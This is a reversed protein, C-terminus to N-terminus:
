SIRGKLSTMEGELRSRTRALLKSPRISFAVAVLVLASLALGVAVVAALEVSRDVSLVMALLGASLALVFLMGGIGALWATHVAAKLHGDIEARALVLEARMLRSSSDVIQRLLEPTSLDAYVPVNPQNETFSAM